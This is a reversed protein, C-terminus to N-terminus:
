VVQEATNESAPRAKGILTDYADSAFESRVSWSLRDEGAEIGPPVPLKRKEIFGEGVVAAIRSWDDFFYEQLLPIVKDRMTADIAKRDTGGDGMFFAHGIRHERDHLYEIRENMIELVRRLPVGDVQEALLRPEPAIEEFRFRRRLATDLLAISRDATNMTGIIHLNAPVGFERKSYPLRVKLANAMGLRKDPEILTILEGFVKSINARNIEDIVLVHPLAEGGTAQADEGSNILRSLVALNLSSKPLEYVTDLSFRRDSMLEAVPVGEPEEWLWRVKRRHSYSGHSKPAYEYEGEVLGIARFANLGKSAVVIDGLSLQNRFRDPSKVMGRQATVNEDPLRTQLEALIADKSAFRAASWDVDEFGFLAFGDQISEEYVWASHPDNSQGLSMKFVSRDELSIGESGTKVPKAARESITRFIGAEPKLTFGTSGEEADDTHPRLGEVFDEYSFNQHFTVFEIQRAAVLEGYRTMLAARGAADDSYEADGDCLRVAEAATRYTKGTGPPGYLILNTPQMTADKDNAPAGFLRDRWFPDNLFWAHDQPLDDLLFARLMDASPRNESPGKLRWVAHNSTYFYWTRPTFTDDWAVGVRLGDESAETITGGARFRNATVIGGGADFPLDNARPVFDKLFIRDGVQMERVRRNNASDNDYVLSWEGREVFRDTGDEEGWLSTVLWIPTDDAAVNVRENGGLAVWVFGQVDFLDQPEWGFEKDLLGFLARMLQLWEALDSERYDNQPFLRRGFFRRGMEEIKAVKFWSAEEPHLTAWVTIPISLVEGRRLGAIGADRLAELERVAFAIAEEAPAESRVLQGLANYFRDTLASEASRVESLTRWNLPVGQQGGVLIRYIGEGATRDDDDGAAIARADEILQNKYRREIDWYAGATERFSTFGPMQRLFDDRARQLEPWDIVVFGLEELTAKCLSGGASAEIGQQRMAWHVIAKSPYRRGAHVLWYRNPLGRDEMGGVFAEPSGAADCAEIAALIAARDLGSLRGGPHEQAECFRRYTTLASRYSALSNYINGDITLATPNPRGSAADASTYAFTALLSAMQDDRYHADLDGHAQDVRRADSM